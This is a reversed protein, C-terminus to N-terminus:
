ICNPLADDDHEDAFERGETSESPEEEDPLEMDEEEHPEDAPDTDTPHREDTDGVTPRRRFVSMRTQRSSNIKRLFSFPQGTHTLTRFRKRLFIFANFFGQMPSCVFCPALPLCWGSLFILYLLVLAPSVYRLIKILLGTWFHWTVTKYTINGLILPFFTLFFALIYLIGQKAVERTRRYHHDQGGAYQQLRAETRRVKCIILVMCLIISPWCVYFLTQGGILTWVAQTDGGRQCANDIYIDDDDSCQDPFQSFSCFGPLARIPNISEGAIGVAGLVIPHSIALVHGWPEIYRAIWREKKEFRILFLFYVALTLSYFMTGFIVNLFVGSITCTTVSGRAGVAYPYDAPLAWPGFVVMSLSNIFDLTSMGLVLRHYVSKRLSPWGESLIVYIILSSGAVSLPATLYTVYELIYLQPDTFKLEPEYTSM